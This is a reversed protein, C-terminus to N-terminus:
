IVPRIVDDDDCGVKVVFDASKPRSCEPQRHENVLACRVEKEPAVLDTTQGM